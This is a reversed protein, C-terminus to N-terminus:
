VKVRYNSHGLVVGSAIVSDYAVIDLHQTVGTLTHLNLFLLSVNMIEVHNDGPRLLLNVLKYELIERLYGVNEKEAAKDLQEYYRFNALNLKEVFSNNINNIFLTRLVIM